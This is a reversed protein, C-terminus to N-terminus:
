CFIMHKPQTIFTKRCQTALAKQLLTDNGAMVATAQKSQFISM